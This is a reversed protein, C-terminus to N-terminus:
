LEKIIKAGPYLHMQDEYVELEIDRYALFQTKHIDGLFVYDYAIFDKVERDAELSWESDTTSGGVAGHYIAINVDGDQPKVSSFGEEDFVSFVCLNFGPGLPYVGSKKYLKIKPNAIAQIIPSIADQRTLNVLNGDHNGLTVHVEAYKVLERFWWVLCDILEPSIGQTKNHVIDGCIIIHDPSLKELQSFMLKFARKYEKHRTLSRWHIDALHVIRM